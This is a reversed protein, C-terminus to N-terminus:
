LGGSRKRRRFLALLGGGVLVVPACVLMAIGGYLLGKAAEVQSAEFEVRDGAFLEEPIVGGTSAKVGLVTVLDGDYFGRYRLTGDPREIEGDAASEPGEGPVITERLGGSLRADDSRLIELEKGGVTIHLAPLSSVTKEWRGSATQSDSDPDPPTVRWTELSYAVFPHEPLLPENGALEGTILIDAGPNVDLVYAADMQPMSAIRNAQLAQRPSLYFTMVAGCCCFAIAAIVAATVGAARDKLSQMLNM